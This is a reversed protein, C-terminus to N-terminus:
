RSGAWRFGALEETMALGHELCKQRLYLIEDPHGVAYGIAGDPMVKVLRIKPNIGLLECVETRFKEADDPPKAM